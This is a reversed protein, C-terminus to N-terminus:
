MTRGEWPQRRPSRYLARQSPEFALVSDVLSWSRALEQRRCALRIECTTKSRLSFYGPMTPFRDVLKGQAYLQYYWYDGDYIGLEITPVRLEASLSALFSWDALRDNSRSRLVPYGAQNPVIELNERALTAFVSHHDMTAVSALTVFEGM